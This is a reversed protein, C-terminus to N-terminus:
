ITCDDWHIKGDETVDGLSMRSVSREPPHAASLEPTEEDIASLGDVTELSGFPGASGRGTIPEICGFPGASGRGTAPTKSRVPSEMKGFPGASGRGTIPESSGFPGASGRGLPKPDCKPLSALDGFSKSKALAGFPGASGRGSPKIRGFLPRPDKHEPLAPSFSEKQAVTTDVTLRVGRDVAALTPM